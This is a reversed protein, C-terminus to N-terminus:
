LQFFSWLDADAALMSHWRWILTRGMVPIYGGVAHPSNTPATLAGTIVLDHFRGGGGEHGHPLFIRFRMAVHTPCASNQKNRDCIKKWPDGIKVWRVM